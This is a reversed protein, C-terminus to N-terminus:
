PQGRPDVKPPKPQPACAAHAADLARQKEAGALDAQAQAERIDKWIRKM